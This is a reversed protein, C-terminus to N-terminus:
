NIRIIQEYLLFDNEYVRRNDHLHGYFWKYYKMIDRLSEVEKDFM